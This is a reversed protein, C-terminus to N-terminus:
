AMVAGANGVAYGCLARMTTEGLIGMAESETCQDRFAETYVRKYAAYLDPHFESIAGNVTVAVLHQRKNVPTRPWQEGVVRNVTVGIANILDDLDRLSQHTLAYATLREEANAGSFQPSRKIEALTAAVANRYQKFANSM